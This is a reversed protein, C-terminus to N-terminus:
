RSIIDPIWIPQHHLSKSLTFINRERGELGALTRYYTKPSQQPVSTYNSYVFVPQRDEGLKLGCRYGLLLGVEGFFPAYGGVCQNVYDHKDDCGMRGTLSM